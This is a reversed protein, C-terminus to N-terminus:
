QVRNRVGELAKALEQVSRDLEAAIARQREAPLSGFAECLDGDVVHSVPAFSGRFALHDRAVLSSTAEGGGEARLAAELRALLEAEDKALLPVLAGVGGAVTAYLVVEAGGATLM